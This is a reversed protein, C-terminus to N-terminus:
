YSFFGPDTATCLLDSGVIMIQPTAWPAVNNVRVAVFVDPTVSAAGISIQPFAFKHTPGVTGTSIDYSTTLFATTLANADDTGHINGLWYMFPINPNTYTSTVTFWIRLQVQGPISIWSKPMRVRGFLTLAKNKDFGWAYFPGSPGTPTEKILVADAGITGPSVTEWHVPLRLNFSSATTPVLDVYSGPNSPDPVAVRDAAIGPTAKLLGLADDKKLQWETVGNASFTIAQNVNVGFSKSAM